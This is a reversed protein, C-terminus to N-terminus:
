CTRDISPDSLLCKREKDVCGQPAFRMQEDCCEEPDSESIFGGDCAGGLSTRRFTKCCGSGVRFVHTSPCTILGEFFCDFIYLKTELGLCILNYFPTFNLDNNM